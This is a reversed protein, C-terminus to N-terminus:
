LSVSEQEPLRSSNSIIVGVRRAVITVNPHLHVDEVDLALRRRPVWPWIGQLWLAFFPTRILKNVEFLVKRISWERVCIRILGFQDGTSSDTLYGM